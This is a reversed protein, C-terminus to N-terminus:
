CMLHRRFTKWLSGNDTNFVKLTVDYRFTAEGIRTKNEAVEFMSIVDNVFELQRQFDPGWISNSADLMFVVDAPKNGCYYEVDTLNFNSISKLKKHYNKHWRLSGSILKSIVAITPNKFFYLCM